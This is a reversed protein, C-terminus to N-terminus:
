ASPHKHRVPKKAVAASAQAAAAHAHRPKSSASAQKLHAPKSLPHTQPAGAQAGAHTGRTTLPKKNHRAVRRAAGVSTSAGQKASGVPKKLRHPTAVADPAAHQRAAQGVHQGQPARGRTGAGNGGPGGKGGPHRADKPEVSSAKQGAHHPKGKPKREHPRPPTESTKKVGRTRDVHPRTPAAEPALATQGRGAQTRPAAPRAGAPAKVPEADPALLPENPNAPPPVQRATSTLPPQAAPRLAVAAPDAAVRGTVPAPRVQPVTGQGGKGAGAAGDPAGGAGGATSQAQGTAGWVLLATTLAMTKWARVTM